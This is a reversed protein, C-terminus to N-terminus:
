GHRRIPNAKMKESLALRDALVKSKETESLSNFREESRKRKTAASVPRLDYLPCSKVTCAETQDRWTGGNHEDYICDKCKANIAQQPSLAM